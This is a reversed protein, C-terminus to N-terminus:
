HASRKISNQGCYMKIVEFDSVTLDYMRGEHWKIESDITKIWINFGIETLFKSLLLTERTEASLYEYISNYSLTMARFKSRGRFKVEWLNLRERTQKDISSHFFLIIFFPQTSLFRTLCDLYVSPSTGLQVARRIPVLAMWANRSNVHAGNVLDMILLLDKSLRDIWFIFYFSM